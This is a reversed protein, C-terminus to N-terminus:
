DFGLDWIGFGGCNRYVFAGQATRRLTEGESALTFPAGLAASTAIFGSWGCGPGVLLAALDLKPEAVCKDILTEVAPSWALVMESPM